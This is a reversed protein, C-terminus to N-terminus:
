FIKNFYDLNLCISKLDCSFSLLYLKLFHYKGAITFRDSYNILNLTFMIVLTVYSSKKNLPQNQNSSILSASSQATSLNSESNAEFSIQRDTEMKFDKLKINERQKFIM